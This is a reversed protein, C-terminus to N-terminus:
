VADRLGFRGRQAAYLAGTGNAVNSAMRGEVAQFIVDIDVGGNANPRTQVDAGHPANHIAVNVQPGGAGLSALRNNPVITGSNSGMHLLEPGNEGVLYTTGAHVPGGTARGGGFGSRFGAGFGAAGGGGMMGAFGQMLGEFVRDALMDMARQRMRDIMRSFAESAAGSGEIIGNFVDGMGTRMDQMFGQAERAADMQEVLGAIAQGEASAADVNAYRLAVAKERELNSMGILSSEFQLNDIVRQVAEQEALLAQEARGRMRLTEEGVSNLSERYALAEQEAATLEKTAEALQRTATTQLETTTTTPPRKPDTATSGFSTSVGRFDWGKIQEDLAAIEERMKALNKESGLWTPRRESEALMEALRDRRAQLQNLEDGPVFGRDALFNKYESILGAIQTTATVAASGVTTILSATDRIAQQNDPNALQDTLDRVTPLLDIAIGQWLGQVATSLRTLNDNFEEAQKGARTSLTIGLRDAEDAAAQLGQKGNALLPILNQFSRGFLEIGLAMMEPSDQNRQFVEAFDLFVDRSNRLTGNANTFAIGLEEFAKAQRSTGGLADSQARTLRGMSTTLDQMSVDSLNAAHALQSFQETPMQARQAAKSMEDMRDIAGKIAYTAAGAGAVLATGVVTGVRRATRGLEELRKEAKKTSTEFSGTRALLDITVSGLAM